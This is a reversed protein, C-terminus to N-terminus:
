VHTEVYTSFFAFLIFGIKKEALPKWGFLRCCYISKRGGTEKEILRYDKQAKTGV